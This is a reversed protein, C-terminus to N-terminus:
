LGSGHMIYATNNVEMTFYQPFQFEKGVKLRFSLGYRRMRKEQKM